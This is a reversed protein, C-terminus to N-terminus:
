VASAGPMPYAVLPLYSSDKNAIACYLSYFGCCSSLIGFYGGAMLVQTNSIFTGICLMLFTLDLFVLLLFLGWTSKVACVAVILNFVFWGALYFGEINRLIEPNDAYAQAVGFQDLNLCGWSIWFGGFSGFVTMAFTDGVCFSLLGSLLVVAGGFIFSADLLYLDTVARVRANVLGLTLCM